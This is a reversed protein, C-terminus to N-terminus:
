FLIFFFFQILDIYHAFEKHVKKLTEELKGEKVRTVSLCRMCEESPKWASQVIIDQISEDELFKNKNFAELAKTTFKMSM